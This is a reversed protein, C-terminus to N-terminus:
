FPPKLTVTRNILDMNLIDHYVLTFLRGMAEGPTIMCLNSIDFISVPKGPKAKLDKVIAHLVLGGGHSAGIMKCYADYLTDAVEENLEKEIKM